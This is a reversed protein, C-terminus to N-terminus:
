PQAKLIDEAESKMIRYANCLQICDDLSLGPNMSSCITGRDEFEGWLGDPDNPLRIVAEHVIFWNTFSVLSHLVRRYEWWGPRETQLREFNARKKPWEVAMDFGPKIKKYLKWGSGQNRLIKGDACYALKETILEIQGLEGHSSLKAM